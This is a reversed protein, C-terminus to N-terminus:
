ASRSEGGSMTTLEDRIKEIRKWQFGALPYEISAALSILGNTRDLLGPLSPDGEGSRKEDILRDRLNVLANVAESMNESVNEDRHSLTYECTELAAALLGARERGPENM